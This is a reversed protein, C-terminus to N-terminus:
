YSRAFQSARWLSFTSRARRYNRIARQRHPGVVRHLSADQVTRRCFSHRRQCFILHKRFGSSISRRFGTWKRTSCGFYRHRQCTLICDRTGSYCGSRALSILVCEDPEVEARKNCVLRDHRRHHSTLSSTSIHVHRTVFVRQSHRKAHHRAVRNSAHRARRCQCCIVCAVM